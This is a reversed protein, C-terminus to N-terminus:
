ILLIHAELGAPPLVPQKQHTWACAQCGQFSMYEKNLSDTPCPYLRLRSSQSPSLPQLSRFFAAQPPSMLMLAIEGISPLYASLTLPNSTKKESFARIFYLSFISTSYKIAKDCAFTKRLRVFASCPFSREHNSFNESLSAEAMFAMSDVVLCSILARSYKMFFFISPVPMLFSFSYTLKPRVESSTLLM